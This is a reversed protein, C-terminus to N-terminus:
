EDQSVIIDNTLNNDFPEGNLFLTSKNEYINFVFVDRTKETSKVSFDHKPVIITISKEGLVTKNFIIQENNFFLQNKLFYIGDFFNEFEM